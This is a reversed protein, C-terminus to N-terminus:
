STTVFFDRDNCRRYHLLIRIHRHYFPTNVFLSWVFDARKGLCLSMACLVQVSEEYSRPSVCKNRFDCFFFLIFLFVCTIIISFSNTLLIANVKLGVSRSVLFPSISFYQKRKEM